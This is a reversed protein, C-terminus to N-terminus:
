EVTNMMVSRKIKDMKNKWIFKFILKNIHDVTQRPPMPLISTLYLLKTLGLSKVITTKGKISMNHMNRVKFLM